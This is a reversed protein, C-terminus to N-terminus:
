SRECRGILHMERMSLPDSLNGERSPNMSLCPYTAVRDKNVHMDVVSTLFGDFSDFQLELLGRSQVSM